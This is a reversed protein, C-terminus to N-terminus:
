EIHNVVLGIADVLTEVDVFDILSAWRWYTLFFHGVVHSRQISYEPRNPLTTSRAIARAM